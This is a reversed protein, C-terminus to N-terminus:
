GGVAFSLGATVMFARNRNAADVRPEDIPTLGLNGMGDVDLAMRDGLDISLGFGVLGGIDFPSTDLDGELLPDKCDLILQIVGEMTVECRNEFSLVPGAYLRATLRGATGVSLVTLLPIEVYDLDISVDAGDDTSAEVGKRTFAAGLEFALRDTLRLHAFGGLTFGTQANPENLDDGSVKTITAGARFGIKTQAQSTMPTAALAMMGIWVVARATMGRVEGQSEGGSDASEIM